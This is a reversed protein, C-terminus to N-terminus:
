REGYGDGGKSVMVWTMFSPPQRPLSISSYTLGLSPPLLVPAIFNVVLGPAPTSLALM